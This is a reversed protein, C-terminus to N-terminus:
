QGGDGGCWVQGAHFLVKVPRTVRVTIEGTKDNLFREVIGTVGNEGWEEEFNPISVPTQDRDASRMRKNDHHLGHSNDPSLFRKRSDDPTPTSELNELEFALDESFKYHMELHESMAPAILEDM